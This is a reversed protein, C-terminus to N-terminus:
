RRGTPKKKQVPKKRGLNSGPAGTTKYEAPDIQLAIPHDSGAPRIKFYILGNARNMNIQIMDMNLPSGSTFSDRM